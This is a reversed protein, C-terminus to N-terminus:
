FIMHTTLVTFIVLCHLLGHMCLQSTSFCGELVLVCELENIATDNWSYTVLCRWYSFGIDAKTHM